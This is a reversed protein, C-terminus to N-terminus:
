AVTPFPPLDVSPTTMNHCNAGQPLTEPADGGAEGGVSRPFSNPSPNQRNPRYILAERHISNWIGESPTLLSSHPTKSVNKKELFIYSIPIEVYDRYSNPQETEGFIPNQKEFSQVDKRWSSASCFKRADKEMKRGLAAPISVAVPCAECSGPACRHRTILFPGGHVRSCAASAQRM